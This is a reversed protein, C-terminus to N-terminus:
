PTPTWGRLSASRSAQDHGGCREPPYRVRRLGRRV